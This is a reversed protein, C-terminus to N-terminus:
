RDEHSYQNFNSLIENNNNNNDNNNNTNAILKNILKPFRKTLIYATTLPKIPFFILYYIILENSQDNMAKCPEFAVCACFPM